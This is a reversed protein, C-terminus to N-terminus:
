SSLFFWPCNWFHCLVNFFLIYMFRLALDKLWPRCFNGSLSYFWFQEIFITQGIVMQLYSLRMGIVSTTPFLNGDPVSARDWETIYASMVHGGSLAAFLVCCLLPGRRTVGCHQKKHCRLTKLSFCNSWVQWETSFCDDHKLHVHHRWVWGGRCVGLISAVNGTKILPASLSSTHWCCAVKGEWWTEIWGWSWLGDERAGQLGSLGPSSVWPRKGCARGSALAGGECQRWAVLSGWCLRPLLLWLGDLDTLNPSTMWDFVGARPGSSRGHLPLASRPTCSPATFFCNPGPGRGRNQPLLKPALGRGSGAPGSSFPVASASAGVPALVSPEWNLCPGESTLSQCGAPLFGPHRPVSMARVVTIVEPVPPWIDLFYSNPVLLM